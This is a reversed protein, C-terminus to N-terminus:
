ECPKDNMTFVIYIQIIHIQLLGIKTCCRCNVKQTQENTEFRKLVYDSSRTAQTVGKLVLLYYQLYGSYKRMVDKCPM